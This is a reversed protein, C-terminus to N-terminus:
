LAIIFFHTDFRYPNFDPTVGIGIEHIDEILGKKLLKVDLVIEKNKKLM